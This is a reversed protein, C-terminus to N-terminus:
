QEVGGGRFNAVIKLAVRLTEIKEISGELTEFNKLEPVENTLVAIVLLVTTRADCAVV